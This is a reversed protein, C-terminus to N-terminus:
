ILKSWSSGGLSIIDSLDVGEDRPDVGALASMPDAKQPLPATNEFVDVGGYADKGVSELLKKRVNNNKNTNIPKKNNKVPPAKQEKILGANDAGVFVEAIVNSLLGEGLLTENILEKVIPRLVNKLQEKKM